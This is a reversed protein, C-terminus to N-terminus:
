RTKLPVLQITPPTTSRLRLEDGVSLSWERDTGKGLDLQRGGRVLTVGEVAGGSWRLTAPYLRQIHAFNSGVNELKRFPLPPGTWTLQNSPVRAHDTLITHPDDLEADALNIQNGEATETLILARGQPFRQNCGRKGLEITNRQGGLVVGTVNKAGQDVGLTFQMRNGFAKEGVVLLTGNDANSHLHPIRLDNFSVTGKVEVCTQFNLVSAFCFDCCQIATDSGDFVVGTGAKREGARFPQPDAMGQSFVQTEIWAPFGDLPVPKEARLRLAAAKGGYVLIGLRYECNMASDLVLLDKDPPGEWNLVYVGGTVRFDQAAPFRITERIHYVPKRGGFGGLVHLDRAERVCCDLAEQWGDTRTGPTRPGFDGSGDFALLVAAAREARAGAPPAANAAAGLAALLLISTLIARSRTLTENM